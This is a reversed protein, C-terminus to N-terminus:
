YQIWNEDIIAGLVRSDNTALEKPISQRGNPSLFYHDPLSFRQISFEASDSALTNSIKM